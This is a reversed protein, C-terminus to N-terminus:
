YVIYYQICIINLIVATLALKTESRGYKGVMPFMRYIDLGKKNLNPLIDRNLYDLLMGKVM